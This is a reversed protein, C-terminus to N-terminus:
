GQDVHGVRILNGRPQWPMANPEETSVVRSPLAHIDILDDVLRVRSPVGKRNTIRRRDLREVCSTLIHQERIWVAAGLEAPWRDRLREVGCGGVEAVALAHTELLDRAVGAIIEDREELLLMPLHLHPSARFQRRNIQADRGRETQVAALPLDDTAVGVIQRCMM